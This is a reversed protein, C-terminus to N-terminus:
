QARRPQRTVMTSRFASRRSPQEKSFVPMTTGLWKTGSAAGPM